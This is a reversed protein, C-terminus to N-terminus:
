VCMWMCQRCPKKTTTAHCSLCASQRRERMEGDMEQRSLRDWGNIENMLCGNTVRDMEGKAWKTTGWRGREIGGEEKYEITLVSLKPLSLTSICPKFTVAGTRSGCLQPAPSGDGWPMCLAAHICVISPPAFSFHLPLHFPLWQSSFLLVTQLDLVGKVGCFTLQLPTYQSLIFQSTSLLPRCGSHVTILYWAKQEQHIVTYFTLGDVRFILVNLHIHCFVVIARPHSVSGWTAESTNLLM